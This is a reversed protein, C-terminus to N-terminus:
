FPIAFYRRLGSYDRDFTCTRERCRRQRSKLLNQQTLRVDPDIILWALSCHNQEVVWQIVKTTRKKWDKLTWPISSLTDRWSADRILNCWLGWLKGSDPSMGQKTHELWFQNAYRRFSYQRFINDKRCVETDGGAEELLRHVSKSSKDNRRLLKLAIKNSLNGPPLSNKIIMSTIGTTTISKGTKHAMQRNFVPFNLYTVCIAGADEDAKKLDVYYKSLSDQVARSLLYQKVSGHTFHVTQQEEEIFVLNGCCAVAKKMDNIYINDNWAEQLPITGIAERLEEVTLPRKAVSVWRFIQRGIDIDDAETYKSLIRKFTEPLDRPLNRLAALILSDSKKERM